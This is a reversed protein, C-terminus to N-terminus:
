SIVQYKKLIVDRQVEANRDSVWDRWEMLDPYNLKKTVITEAQPFDLVSACWDDCGFYRLEEQSVLFNLFQEKNSM